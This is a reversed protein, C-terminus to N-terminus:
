EDKQPLGMGGRTRCYEVFVSGQLSVLSHMDANCLQM